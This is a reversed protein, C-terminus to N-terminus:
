HENKVLEHSFTKGADAAKLENHNATALTVSEDNSKLLTSFSVIRVFNKM